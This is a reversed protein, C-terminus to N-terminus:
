LGLLEKIRDTQYGVVCERDNIVVTPFSTKPNWKRVEDLIRSKEPGSELDVDVYDYALGEGDLFAKVKRCWGCTSLAYVMIKGKTKGEVHKTDM